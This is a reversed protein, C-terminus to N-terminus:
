YGYKKLHEKWEAVLDHGRLFEETEVMFRKFENLIIQPVGVPTDTPCPMKVAQMEGICEVYRMCSKADPSIGPAQFLMYAAGELDPNTENKEM